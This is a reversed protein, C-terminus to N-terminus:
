NDEEKVGEKDDMDLDDEHEMKESLKSFKLYLQAILAFVVSHVLLGSTTPTGDRTIRLVPGLMKQTLAYIQPHSVVFFVCSLAISLLLAFM